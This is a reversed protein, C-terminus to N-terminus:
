IRYVNKFQYIPVSLSVSNSIPPRLHTLQFTEGPLLAKHHIEAPRKDAKSFYIRKDRQDVQALFPHDQNDLCSISLSIQRSSANAFDHDLFCDAFASLLGAPSFLFILALILFRHKLV